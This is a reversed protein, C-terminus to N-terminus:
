TAIQAPNARRGVLSDGRHAPGMQMLRKRCGYSPHQLFNKLVSGLLAQTNNEKNLCRGMTPGRHQRLFYEEIIAAQQEFRYELLDKGPELYFVYAKAYKLRHRVGERVAAIALNLINNQHQWVHVAEHIFLRQKDLPALSFDDNYGDPLYIHGAYSMNGIVNLYGYGRDYVRVASYDISDAFISQALKIEGATLGRKSM